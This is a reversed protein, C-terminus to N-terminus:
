KLLLLKEIRDESLLVGKNCSLILEWGAIRYVKTSSKAYQVEYKGILHWCSFNLKQHCHPCNMKTIDLWVEFELAMDFSKM